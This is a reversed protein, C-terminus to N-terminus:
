DATTEDDAFRLLVEICLTGANAATKAREVLYYDFAMMPTTTTGRSAIMEAAQVIRLLEAIDLLHAFGGTASMFDQMFEIGYAAREDVLELDPILVIAHAPREREVSLTSGKPGTVPVGSKLARMAGRLQAFAKGIHASVDRTLKARDPLRERTLVSLAKSEILVSGFEHSLLIDTLERTGNGKPIQPSHHVGSSQLNDTLWVGLQEQQNGEDDDFLHILSISAGATIFHNRIPKWDSKGGVELVLWEDEDEIHRHLRNLLPLAAGKIASHDVRGLAANNTWMSLRDLTGQAPLNNWAVNVALENFLFAALPEDRALSRIGNLEEEREVVSWLICGNEGDDYVKLACLLRGGCITFALQMRAGLVIYKLLVTSGKVLFAPEFGDSGHAYDFRILQPVALFESRNHASLIHMPGDHGM